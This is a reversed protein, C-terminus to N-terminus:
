SIKCCHIKAVFSLFLPLPFFGFCFLLYMCSNFFYQTSYFFSHANPRAQFGNGGEEEKRKRIADGAIRVAEDLLERLKVTEGSRTKFKKGDEGSFFNLFIKFFRYMCKFFLFFFFSFISFFFFFDVYM